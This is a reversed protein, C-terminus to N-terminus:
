NGGGIQSYLELAVNVASTIAQSTITASTLAQIETDSKGTKSVEIVGSKGKFQDKFSDKKANMGLGPTENIKILEIGTVNGDKDIGTMVEIDGAYGKHENTCVTTFIYGVTKGNEDKGEFYEINNKLMEEFELADPLVVKRSSAANQASIAAIKPATFGNVFALLITAVFCIIFLSITPVLIDKANMKKM